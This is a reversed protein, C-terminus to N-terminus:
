WEAIDTWENAGCIMGCLAIVLINNLSHREANGRRPNPVGKFVEVLRMEQKTGM